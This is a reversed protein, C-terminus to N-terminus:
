KSLFEEKISELPYVQGEDAQKISQLIKEKFYIEYLIDEWTSDDPLNNILEIAQEKIVAM